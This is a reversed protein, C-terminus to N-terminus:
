ESRVPIFAIEEQGQGSYSALHSLVLGRDHDLDVGPAPPYELDHVAFIRDPAPTAVAVSAPPATLAVSGLLLLLGLSAYALRKAFVPELFLSWLSDSQQAEIRARVRAYFGPLPEVDEVPRLAHFLAAQTSIAQVEERCGVCEALHLHFQQLLVSNAKGSLYDELGEQIPQHM